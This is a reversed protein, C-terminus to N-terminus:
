WSSGLSGVLGVLLDEHRLLMVQVMGCPIAFIMHNEYRLVPLFRDQDAGNAALAYALKPGYATSIEFLQSYAEDV